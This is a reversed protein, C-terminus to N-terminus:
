PLMRIYALMSNGAATIPNRAHETVVYTVPILHSLLTQPENSILRDNYTLISCISLCKSSLLTQEQGNTNHHKFYILM